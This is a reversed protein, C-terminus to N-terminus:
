SSQWRLDRIAAHHAEALQRCAALTQNAHPAPLGDQIAELVELLQVRLSEITQDIAGRLLRGDATTICNRRALLRLKQSLDHLVHEQSM